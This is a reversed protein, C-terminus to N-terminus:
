ATKEEKCLTVVRLSDGPQCHLARMQEDTLKISDGDADAPILAM